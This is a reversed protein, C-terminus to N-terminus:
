DDHDELYTRTRVFYGDTELTIQGHRDTRYVRAGSLRALVETTPHNFSNGRGASILAIHPRWAEILEASTSTRSGHHAVKLIRIPAPTLLPVIEREIEGGIDGTFLIAVKGFTLELVVSDDNRVRPREWDPPAPHLVRVRARGWRRTAGRHLTEPTAGGRVARTRLDSSLAHSPVPVGTWLRRPAFDRVVAAAGGAHDPDAHTILLAGLERVGHAWLAPAVVRTGIQDSSGGFPAGAADILLPAAGPIEVLMSEAQGVDLVTLRLETRGLLDPRTDRVPVGGVMAAGAVVATTVGLPRTIGPRMALVVAAYYVLVLTLGPPPVRPALSPMLDVLRASEVIAAAAAGAIWGAPGALVDFGACLRDSTGGGRANPGALIGSRGQKVPGGPTKTM